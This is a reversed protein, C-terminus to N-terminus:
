PYGVVQNKEDTCPIRVLDLFFFFRFRQVIEAIRSPLPAQNSFWSIILNEDREGMLMLAQFLSPGHKGPNGCVVDFEVFSVRLERFKQHSALGGRTERAIRMVVRGALAFSRWDVIHQGLASGANDPYSNHFVRRM